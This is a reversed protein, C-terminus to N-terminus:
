RPVLVRLASEETWVEVPGVGVVEGDVEFPAAWGLTFRRGVLHTVAPHGVHAGRRAAPLLRLALEIRRVAAVAVLDMRGDDPRAWPAVLMGGAAFRGNAVFLLHSSGLDREVGDVDAHMPTGHHRAIARLAILTFALRGLRRWPRTMQGAIEPGLGVSLANLFARPAAMGAGQAWGVDITRECREGLAEVTDAAGRIGLGLAFDNGTGAPLCALAPLATARPASLLGNVAENLTGDGGVILVTEVGHEVARRALHTM